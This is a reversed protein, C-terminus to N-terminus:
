VGAGVKDHSLTKRVDSNPADCIHIHKKDTTVDIVLDAVTTNESAPEPLNRLDEETIQIRVVSNEDIKDHKERTKLQKHKERLHELIHYQLERTQPGFKEDPLRGHAGYM